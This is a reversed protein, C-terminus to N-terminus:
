SIDQNYSHPIESTLTFVHLSCMNLMNFYM